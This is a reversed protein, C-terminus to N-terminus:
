YTIHSVLWRAVVGTCEIQESQERFAHTAGAIIHLTKDPSGLADYLQQIHDLPCSTDESGAIILTPITIKNAQPLLDHQLREEMQFWHKKRVSGKRETIYVGAAQWKALLEPNRRAVSEFSLKGSVVPAVPILYAVEAPYEMAYRVASYGGMSHGALALPAVYWAQKQVWQVVDVFDEYHLGLTSKEYDGASEGFSNTTDFNFTQFGAQHFGQKTAQIASHEKNTHWGHQLVATGRVVGAPQELIGVITQQKRNPLELKKM